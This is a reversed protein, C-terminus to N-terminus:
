HLRLFRLRNKNLEISLKNSNYQVYEFKCQIYLAPYHLINVSVVSPKLSTNIYSILIVLDIMFM